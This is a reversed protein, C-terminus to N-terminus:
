PEPKIPPPVPTDGAVPITVPITPTANVNGDGPTSPVFATPRISIEIGNIADKLDSVTQPLAVFMARYADISDATAPCAADGVLRFWSGYATPRIVDKSKPNDMAPNDLFGRNLFLMYRAGDEFKFPHPLDLDAAPLKGVAPLKGDNFPMVFESPIDGKYIAEVKFNLDTHPAQYTSAIGYRPYFDYVPGRSILTAVAVIDAQRAMEVATKAPKHLGTFRPQPDFAPCASNM